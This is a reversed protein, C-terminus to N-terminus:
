ASETSDFGNYVGVAINFGQDVDFMYSQDFFNEHVTKLLNINTKGVLVSMKYGTYALLLFMLLFSCIGGVTSTLM